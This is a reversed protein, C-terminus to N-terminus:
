RMGPNQCFKSSPNDGVASASGPIAGGGRSRNLCSNVPIPANGSAIELPIDLCASRKGIDGVLASVIPPAPDATIICDRKGHHLLADNAGARVSSSRSGCCRRAKGAGSAGIACGGGGSGGASGEAGGCLANGGGPGGTIACGDGSSRAASKNNRASIGEM